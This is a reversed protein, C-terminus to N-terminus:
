PGYTGQPQAGFAGSQYAANDRLQTKTVEDNGFLGGTGFLAESKSVKDLNSLFDKNQLMNGLTNAATEQNNMPAPISGQLNKSAAGTLGAAQNIGYMGQAPATAGAAARAAVTKAMDDTRPSLGPYQFQPNALTATNAASQELGQRRGQNISDVGTMGKIQADILSDRLNSSESKGLKALVDGVGSGSRAFSRLTDQRLPDFTERAANTAQQQLLGTLEGSQMPRFAELARRASDAAPGAETARRAAIANALQAQRMDTTNRSIGAQEAATQAAQPLAGLKSIWTNSGPDYEMSSGFSDSQGAVARQNVMQAVMRQYAQNDRADRLQQQEIAIRADGQPNGRGYQSAISSAAGATTALAGIIAAATAAM